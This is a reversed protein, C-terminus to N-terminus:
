RELCDDALRTLPGHINMQKLLSTDHQSPRPFARQPQRQDFVFFPLNGSDQVSKCVQVRSHGVLNSWSDLSCFLGQSACKRLCPGFTQVFGPKSYRGSIHRNLIARFCSVAGTFTQMSHSGINRQSCCASNLNRSPCAWCAIRNDTEVKSKEHKAPSPLPQLVRSGPASRSNSIGIMNPGTILGRDTDRM